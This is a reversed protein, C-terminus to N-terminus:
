HCSFCLRHSESVALNKIQLSEIDDLLKDDCYEIQSFTIPIGLDVLPQLYEPDLDYEYECKFDAKEIHFQFM